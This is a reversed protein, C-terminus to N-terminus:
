PVRNSTDSPVAKPINVTPRIADKTPTDSRCHHRLLLKLQRCAFDFADTHKKNMIANGKLSHTISGIVGKRGIVGEM